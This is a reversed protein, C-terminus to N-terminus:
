SRPCRGARHAGARVPAPHGAPLSRHGRRPAPRDAAPFHEGPPALRHGAARRARADAHDQAPLPDPLPGPGAFLPLVLVALGISLLAREGLGAGIVGVTLGAALFSKGRTTFGSLLARM